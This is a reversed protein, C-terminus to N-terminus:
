DLLLHDGQDFLALIHNTQRLCACAFGSSKNQRKHIFQGGAFLACPPATTRNQHQRRGTFQGILNSFGNAAIAFIDIIGLRNNDATDTIRRLDFGEATAGIDNDRGRPPRKIM